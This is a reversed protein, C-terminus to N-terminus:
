FREKEAIGGYPGQKIEVLVTDELLKFGHGGSVLIIIDGASLRKSVVFKKKDDYLDIVCKGKKVILIEETRDLKRVVKKHIHRKISTNAPYVVYGIQLNAESSTFFTTKNIKKSGKIIQALLKGRNIIKEIKNM